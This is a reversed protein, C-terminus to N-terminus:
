LVLVRLQRSKDQLAKQMKIVREHVEQNPLKAMISKLEVYLNEKEQLMRDIQIVEDTKKILRRQYTQIKLILEYTSPDNGQLARWRHANAPVKLEEELTRCHNKENLLDKNLRYIEARMEDMTSANRAMIGKERNLRQLELKLVRIDDLRAKYAGEGKEMISELIRLKESLLTLEDNRRIVQTGLIDRERTIRQVEKLMQEKEHDAHKIIRVLKIQETEVDMLKKEIDMTKKKLLTLESRLTNRETEIRQRELHEKAIAGEVKTIQDRLQEM